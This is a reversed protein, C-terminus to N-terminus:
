CTRTSRTSPPSSKRFTLIACTSRTSTSTLPHLLASLIAGPRRASCRRYYHLFSYHIFLTSLFRLGSRAEPYGHKAILQATSCGHAAGPVGCFDLGIAAVPLEKVWLYAAEDLDDYPVM